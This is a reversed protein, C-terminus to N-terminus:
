TKLEMIKSLLESNQRILEANQRIIEENKNNIGISGDIYSAGFFLCCGIVIFPFGIFIAFLGFRDENCIRYGCYAFGLGFVTAIISTMINTYISQMFLM